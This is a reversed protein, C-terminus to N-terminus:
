APVRAASQNAAALPVREQAREYEARVAPVTPDYDAKVRKTLEQLDAWLQHNSPRGWFWYGVYVKEIQLRPGLVLTHPVTAPHHVDTYEKIDLSEQVDLTEDCLFTWYAGSTIKLKNTEHANNPLITVLETFAVACWQHFQVLERHQQRERPCHEGRGLQLIMLNEGQLESLRHRRGDDDPLEFDPLVAGVELGKSM